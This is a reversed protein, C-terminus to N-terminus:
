KPRRILETVTADKYITRYDAIANHRHVVAGDRHEILWAVTESSEAERQWKTPLRDGCKPCVEGARVSTGAMMCLTCGPHESLTLEPPLRLRECEAEAREAREMVAATVGDQIRQNHTLASVREEARKLNREIGQLRQAETRWGDAAEMLRQGNERLDNREATMARITALTANRDGGSEVEEGLVRIFTVAADREAAVAALERLTDEYQRYLQDSMDNM